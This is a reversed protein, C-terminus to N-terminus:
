LCEKEGRPHAACPIPAGCIWVGSTMIEMHAREIDTLQHPCTAPEQAGERHEACRPPISGKVADAGCFQGLIYSGLPWQCKTPEGWAGEDQPIAPQAKCCDKWYCAETGVHKSKAPQAQPERLRLYAQAAEWAKETLVNAPNGLAAALEDAAKLQAQLSEIANMAAGMLHVACACLSGM